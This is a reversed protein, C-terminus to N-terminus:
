VKPAALPEDAFSFVWGTEGGPYEIEIGENLTGLLGYAAWNCPKPTKGEVHRGICEVMASNPNLGADTFDQPSVENKCAPCRVKCTLGGRRTFEAQWEELTMKIREAM